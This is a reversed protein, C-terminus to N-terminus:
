RCGQPLRLEELTAVWRIHIEHIITNDWATLRYTFGQQDVREIAVQVNPQNVNQELKLLMIGISILM